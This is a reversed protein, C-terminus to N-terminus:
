AATAGEVPSDPDFETVGMAKSYWHDVMTKPMKQVGVRVQIPTHDDLTLIFAKPVNVLIKEEAALKEALGAARPNTPNSAGTETVFATDILTTRANRSPFQRTAM